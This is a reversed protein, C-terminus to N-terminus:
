FEDVNHGQMAKMVTSNMRLEVFRSSVSELHKISNHILEKDDCTSLVDLEDRAKIIESLMDRDLLAKDQKLASDIAELTRTADVRAEHLLRTKIDDEAFTISDKLMREMEESRLGFSPKIVVDSKVGSNEETASVSLLGDADVQFEVRVRASGAVM